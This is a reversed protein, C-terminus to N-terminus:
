WLFWLALYLTNNDSASRGAGDYNNSAGNFKSYIVYQATAQVNLSPLWTWQL